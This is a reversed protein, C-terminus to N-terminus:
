ADVLCILVAFVWGGVNKVHLVLSQVTADVGVTRKRGLDAHAVALALVLANVLGSSADPAGGGGVGAPSRGYLLGLVSQAHNLLDGKVSFFLYLLFEELQFLIEAKLVVPLPFLHELLLFEPVVMLLLPVLNCLVLLDLHLSISFLKHRHSIM